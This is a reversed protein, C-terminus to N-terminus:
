QEWRWPDLLGLLIISVPPQITIFGDTGLMRRQSSSGHLHPWYATLLVYYSM